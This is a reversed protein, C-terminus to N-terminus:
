PELDAIAKGTEREGVGVTLSEVGRTQLADAGGEVEEVTSVPSGKACRLQTLKMLKVLSDGLGPDANEGNAHIGGLYRFREAGLQTGLEREQGILFPSEDLPEVNPM